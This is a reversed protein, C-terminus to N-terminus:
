GILVLIGLFLYYGVAAGVSLLFIAKKLKQKTSLTRWQLGFPEFEIVGETKQVPSDEAHRIETDLRYGPELVQDAGMSGKDSVVEM